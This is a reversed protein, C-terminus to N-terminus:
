IKQLIWLLHTPKNGSLHVNKIIKLLNILLTRYYVLISNPRIRFESFVCDSYVWSQHVIKFNGSYEYELNNAWGAESFYKITEETIFNVHTPDQFAAASPFAPTVAYFYGGPMLCRNIENMFSIFPFRMKENSIREWRPIHEIVDFASFSSISNNKFPFDKTLDFVYFDTDFDKTVPLKYDSGTVKSSSFPNRIRNGSGLDVHLMSVFKFNLPVFFQWKLYKLYTKKFIM